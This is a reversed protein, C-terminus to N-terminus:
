SPVFDRTFDVIKGNELFTYFYYTRHVSSILLEDHINCYTEAASLPSDASIISLPLPEYLPSVKAQMLLKTCRYPAAFISYFM